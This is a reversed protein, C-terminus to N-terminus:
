TSLLSTRSKLSTPRQTPVKFAFIQCLMCVDLCLMGLSGVLFPAQMRLWAPQLSRSLLSAAYAMNGLVSFAFLWISIDEVRRSSFTHVLQPVRSAMDEAFDTQVDCHFEFYFHLLKCRSGMSSHFFIDWCCDFDAMSVKFQKNFAGRVERYVVVM